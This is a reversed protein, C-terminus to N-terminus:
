FNSDIDVQENRTSKQMGFFTDFFPVFQGDRGGIQDSSRAYRSSYPKAILPAFNWPERPPAVVSKSYIM